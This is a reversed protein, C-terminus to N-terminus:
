NSLYRGLMANAWLRNMSRYGVDNPHVGDASIEEPHDRFWAYLDPGCPLGNATSIRDIVGNFMPLTTPAQTSYPIRALIPVRGSALVMDVMTNMNAEFTTVAAGQKDGWSDNTGYLLGVNRIDPNLALWDALHGVGMASLEGGIGGDLMAPSFAPRAAAVLGSFSTSPGFQRRFANVTISDGMFFWSDAPLDTGAASVDYLAIEDISVTANAATNVAASFAIKVWNKGAFPFRHERERVPNGAVTAVTEWTGDVGNTSDGSTAVTYDAPSGGSAPTNYDTWGVDAWTLLLREPGAALEIAIWAPLMAVAVSMGSHDYLGDVIKEPNTVGASAKVPRGVSVIPNPTAIQTGARPTPQCSPAAYVGRGGAATQSGGGAGGTGAGVPTGGSGSGAGVPGYVPNAACGLVGGALGVTLLRVALARGGRGEPSGPLRTPRPTSEM